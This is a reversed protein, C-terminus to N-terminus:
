MVQMTYLHVRVSPCTKRVAKLDNLARESSCRGRLPSLYLQGRFGSKAIAEAVADCDCGEGCIFNGSIQVKKHTSNIAGAREMGRLVDAATQEKRLGLLGEDTAAEWGVNICVNEFPLTELTDFMSDPQGCFTRNTAFMFLYSSAHFSSGCRFTAFARRAADEVCPSILADCEGFVVANYNLLDAGYVEAVADIQRNIDDHDRLAFASEGRAVCFGCANTCGDMLKILLVRYDVRITDPPLVEMTGHIAHLRDAIRQLADWDNAAAKRLFDWLRGADAESVTGGSAYAAEPKRAVLERIASTLEGFANLAAVAHERQAAGHGELMPLDIRGNVAWASDGILGSPEPVPGPKWVRDYYVWENTMTRQIWDWSYPSAFGDIRQIRGELDFHFTYPGSQVMIPKGFWDIVGAKNFNRDGDHDFTVTIDGVRLAIM